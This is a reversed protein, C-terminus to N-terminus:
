WHSTHTVRNNCWQAGFKIGSCAPNKKRAHHKNQNPTDRLYPHETAGDTNQERSKGKKIATSNLTAMMKKAASATATSDADIESSSYVTASQMSSSHVPSELRYQFSETVSGGVEDIAFNVCSELLHSGSVKEIENDVTETADAFDYQLAALLLQLSAYTSYAKAAIDRVRKSEELSGFYLYADDGNDDVDPITAGIWSYVWSRYLERLLLPVMGKELYTRQYNYGALLANISLIM